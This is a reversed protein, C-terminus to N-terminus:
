SPWFMESLFMKFAKNLRLPAVHPDEQQRIHKLFETNPIQNLLELRTYIKGVKICRDLSGRQRDKDRRVNETVRSQTQLESNSTINEWARRETKVDKQCQKQDEKQEQSSHKTHCGAM